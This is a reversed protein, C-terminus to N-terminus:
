LPSVKEHRVGVHTTPHRLNLDERASCFCMSFWGKIAPKKNLFFQSPSVIAFHHNFGAKFQRAIM